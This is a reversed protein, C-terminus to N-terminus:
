VELQSQPALRVFEGSTQKLQDLTKHSLRQFQRERSLRIEYLGAWRCFEETKEYEGDDLLGQQFLEYFDESTLGYKKEFTKIEQGLAYVSEVLEGLTIDAM